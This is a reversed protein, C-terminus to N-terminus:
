VFIGVNLDADVSKAGATNAVVQATSSITACKDEIIHRYSFGSFALAFMVIGVLFVAIAAFYNRTLISKKRM